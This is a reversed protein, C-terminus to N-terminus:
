RRHPAPGPGLLLRPRCSSWSGNPDPDVASADKSEEDLSRDAARTVMLAHGLQHWADFALIESWSLVRVFPLPNSLLGSPAKGVGITITKPLHDFM